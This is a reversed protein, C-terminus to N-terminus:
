NNKNLKNGWKYMVPTKTEQWQQGAAQEIPAQQCYSLNLTRTVIKFVTGKKKIKRIQEKKKIM